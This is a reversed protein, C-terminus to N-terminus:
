PAAIGRRDLLARVALSVAMAGASAMIAQWPLAVALLACLVAGTMSVGSWLRLGAVNGARRAR